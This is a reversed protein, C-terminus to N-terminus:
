RTAGSDEENEPEQNVSPELQTQVRHDFPHEFAARAQYQAFATLLAGSWPQRLRMVRKLDYEVTRDGATAHLGVTAALRPLALVKLADPLQNRRLREYKALAACFFQELKM